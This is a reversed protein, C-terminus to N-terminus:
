VIRWEYQQSIHHHQPDECRRREIKHGLHRLELIRAGYRPISEALFETGCTWGWNLRNLVEDRQTTM